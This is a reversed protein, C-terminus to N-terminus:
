YKLLIESHYMILYNKENITIESGSNKNYLVKDGIEVEIITNNLGPGIAIVIGEQPKSDKISGPLYIGTKTKDEPTIPEIIVRNGLPKVTLEM